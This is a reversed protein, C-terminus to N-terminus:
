APLSAYASVVAMVAPVAVDHDFAEDAGAALRHLTFGDILAVLARAGEQPKEAGLRLLVSDALAAYADICERATAQLEVRRAATAYLEFQGVQAVGEARFAALAGEAVASALELDPM